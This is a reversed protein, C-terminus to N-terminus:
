KCNYMGPWCYTLPIPLSINCLLCTAYVQLVSQYLLCKSILLLSNLQVGELTLTYKRTDINMDAAGTIDWDSSVRVRCILAGKQYGDFPSVMSVIGTINSSDPGEEYEWTSKLTVIQQPYYQLYSLFDM